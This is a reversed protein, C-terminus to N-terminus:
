QVYFCFHFVLISPLSIGMTATNAIAHSRCPPGLALSLLFMTKQLDETTGHELPKMAPTALGLIKQQSGPLLTVKNLSHYLIM